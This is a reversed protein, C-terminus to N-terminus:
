AMTLSILRCHTSAGFNCKISLTSGCLKARKNALRQGIVVPNITIEFDPSVTSVSACSFIVMAQNLVARLAASIAERVTESTSGPSLMSLCIADFHWNVVKSWSGLKPPRYEANEATPRRGAKITPRLTLDMRCPAASTRWINSCRVVGSVQAGAM